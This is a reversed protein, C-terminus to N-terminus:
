PQNAITQGPLPSSPFSNLDPLSVLEALMKEAVEACIDYPLEDGLMRFTREISDDLAAVIDPPLPLGEWNKYDSAQTDPHFGLGFDRCLKRLWDRCGTEDADAPLNPDFDIDTSYSIKLKESSDDIAKRMSARAQELTIPKWGEAASDADSWVGNPDNWTLWQIIDTRTGDLLISQQTKPSAFTETTYEM